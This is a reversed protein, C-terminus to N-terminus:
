KNLNKERNTTVVKEFKKEQTDTLINTEVSQKSREAYVRNLSELEGKFHENESYIKNYDYITGNVNIKTVKNNLFSQVFKKDMGLDMLSAFLKDYKDRYPRVDKTWRRSYWPHKKYIKRQTLFYERVNLLTNIKIEKKEEDSTANKLKEKAENVVQTASEDCITSLANLTTKDAREIFAMHNKDHIEPNVDIKIEPTFHASVKERLESATLGAFPKADYQNPTGGKIEFHYKLMEQMFKDFDALVDGIGKADTETKFFNQDKPIMDLFEDLNRTYLEKYNDDNVRNAAKKFNVSNIFDSEKVHLKDALKSSDHKIHLHDFLATKLSILKEYEEAQRAKLRQLEDLEPPISIIMDNSDTQIQYDFDFSHDNYVALEDPYLVSMKKFIDTLYAGPRFIPIYAKKDKLVNSDSFQTEEVHSYFSKIISVYEPEASNELDELNTRKIEEEM